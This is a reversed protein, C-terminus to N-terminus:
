NWKHGRRNWIFRAGIETVSDVTRAGCNICYVFHMNNVEHQRAEGDCFPCQKLKDDKYELDLWQFACNTEQRKNVENLECKFCERKHCYVNFAMGREEVTKFKEGNTM